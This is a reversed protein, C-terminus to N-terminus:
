CFYPSVNTFSIRVGQIFPYVIFVGFLILVPLYLLNLASPSSWFQRLRAGLDPTTNKQTPMAALKVNAM